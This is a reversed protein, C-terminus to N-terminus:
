EAAPPVICLGNVDLHDGVTDISVFNGVYKRSGWENEDYNPNENIGFCHLKNDADTIYFLETSADYSMEVNKADTQIEIDLLDEELTSPNLDADLRMLTNGQYGSGTYYVYGDVYEVGGVTTYSYDYWTTDISAVSSNVANPEMYTPDFQFVYFGQAVYFYNNVPDYTMDAIVDTYVYLYGMATAQHTILDYSWLMPYYGTNIEAYYMTNGVVNIGRVNGAGHFEHVVEVTSGPLEPNFTVLANLDASVTYAKSPNASPTIVTVACKATVNGNEVSTATITATGDAVGTVVGNADVTAVTEDSSSWTIGQELANSPRITGTLTLTEGTAVRASTKNLLIGNVAGVPTEEATPIAAMGGLFMNGVKNSGREFKIAPQGLNYYAPAGEGGLQIMYLGYNTYTYSPRDAVTANLYLRNTTVDYTMKSSYQPTGYYAAGTYVVAGSLNTVYTAAGTTKDLTYLSAETNRDPSGAAYLTGDMTAALATVKQDLTAVDTVYGTDLDVTVLKGMYTLGYMTSTAYDMTMDTVQDAGSYNNDVDGEYPLNCVGLKVYKLRDADSVRYFNGLRDYGYWYGDYYETTILSYTNITSTGIKSKSIDYDLLDAWFDYYSSGSYTDDVMFASLVGGAELVTITISDSFSDTNDGKNQTTVTITATGVAHYTVVGFHDVTAVEPNDSVWTKANVTPRAPTTVANLQLTGGVLGTATEGNAIEIAETHIFKTEPENEPVTFIVTIETGANTSVDGLDIIKATLEGWEEVLRIMYLPSQGSNNCPTWYINGTNYDYGMAGYYWFEAGASGVMKCNMDDPNITYLNGDMDAGLIVSEGTMPDIAVTMAPMPSASLDGQFTGLLDISGTDLDLIALGGNTMDVGYMRGSNYDFAINAIEIGSTRGVLELNTLRTEAPTEGQEVKSRYLGTGSYMITYGDHQETWSEYQVTYVYGNYYAGGQWLALTEVPNGEYDEAVTYQQGLNTVKKPAADSFTIWSQNNALNKYDVINFAYLEPQSAIVNVTCSVTREVWAGTYNGTDYDYNAYQDWVQTTATITVEGPKHATVLGVNTVTAIEEDSSSWTVPQADAYWPTWSLELLATRGEIMDLEYESMSVGTPDGGFVLFDSELDNPVFLSTAGSEGWYGVETCEGTTLDLEYLASLVTVYAGLSNQSHAAWYMKGTNHDYTMSQIVNVGLFNPEQAFTTTAVYTAEGTFKDLTYLRGNTDITYLQGETTCGLTLAEGDDILGTVEAFDEVYISGDYSNVCFRYLMNTGNSGDEREQYNWGVAYLIDTNRYYWYGGNDAPTQGSHDLAMDYLVYSGPETIEAYQEVLTKSDWYTNYPTILDINGNDARQAIVYGNVYEASYYVVTTDFTENRIDTMDEIDASFWGRGLEPIIAIECGYLRDNDLDKIQPKVGAMDGLDLLVDVETENCAFDAVLISFNNGYGTIDYTETYVEGPVNNVEYKGMIDGNANLFLLAAINENELFSLTLEVKSNEVDVKLNDQLSDANVVEPYKNDMTAEFSWVDDIIDDGDDVWANVTYVIRTGDPLTNGNADYGTWVEEVGSGNYVYFPIVMGYSASYYSKAIETGSLTWYVEGTDANTVVFELKKAGRLLGVDIEAFPNAYSFANYKDGAKGGRIYPNTGLQAMNTFAYRPYLSAENADASDFIPADSWDGYFGLLPMQLDVGNEDAANLYLYGEVFM